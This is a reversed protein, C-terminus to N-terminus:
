EHTKAVVVSQLMFFPATRYCTNKKDYATIHDFGIFPLQLM